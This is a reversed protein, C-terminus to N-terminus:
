KNGCCLLLYISHLKNTVNVSKVATAVVKEDRIEFRRLVLWKKKQCVILICIKRYGSQKQLTNFM